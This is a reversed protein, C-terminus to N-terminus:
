ATEVTSRGYLTLFYNIFLRFIDEFIYLINYGILSSDTRAKIGPSVESRTVILRILDDDSTGFGAMADHLRRAFFRPKYRAVEVVFCPACMCLVYWSVYFFLSMESSFM